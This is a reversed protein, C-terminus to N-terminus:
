HNPTYKTYRKRKNINSLLKGPVKSVSGDSPFHVEYDGDPYQFECLCFYTKDGWKCHLTDNKKFESKELVKGQVFEMASKISRFHQGDPSCAGKKPIITYGIRRLFAKKDNISCIGNFQEELSVLDKRDYYARPKGPFTVEYRNEYSWTIRGTCMWQRHQVLEGNELHDSDEMLMELVKAADIDDQTQKSKRVRWGRFLAQIMTPDREPSPLKYCYDNYREITVPNELHFPSIVWGATNPRTTYVFSKTLQPGKEIIVLDCGLYKSAACLMNEDVHTGPRGVAAIYDDWSQMVVINGKMHVSIPHAQSRDISDEVYGACKCRIHHVSKKDKKIKKLCYFLSNAARTKTPANKKLM